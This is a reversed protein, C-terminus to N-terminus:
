YRVLIIIINFILLSILWFVRTIQLINKNNNLSRDSLIIFLLPIFPAVHRFEFSSFLIAYFNVLFVGLIFFVSARKKYKGFYTYSKVLSSPFIIILFLTNFFRFYEQMRPTQIFYASIPFPFSFFYIPFLLVKTFINANFLITSTGSESLISENRSSVEKILGFSPLNLIIFIFFVLAFLFFTILLKSKWYRILFSFSFIVFPIVTYSMRLWFTCWVVATTILLYYLHAKNGISFNYSHYCYFAILALQMSDRYHSTGLLLNVGSLFFLTFFVQKNYFVKEIKGIKIMLMFYFYYAIVNLIINFYVGILPSKGLNLYGFFRYLRVWLWIALPSNQGNISIELLSMDDYLGSFIDEYFESSDDNITLTSWSITALFATFLFIYLVDKGIFEFKKRNLFFFSLFILLTYPFIYLDLLNIYSM